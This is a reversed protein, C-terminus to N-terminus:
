NSLIYLIEDIKNTLRGISFPIEDDLLTRHFADVISDEDLPNFIISPECVVYTYPLDAAIIKCGSEIAEVLGLGLSESLSPHIVYESQSLIRSVQQKMIFGVNEIPIGEKQKEDILALLNRYYPSVTLILKGEKTQVYFKCFANILRVHNKYVPANSIYAFTGKSRLLKKGESILPEFFPLVLVKHDEIKTSNMLKEKMLQTQVIWYDTNKFFFNWIMRKGLFLGKSFFSQNNPTELYLSQHLYTYVPVKLRINPPLNGFCFVKSFRNKNKQYFRHRELLSAKKYLVINREKIYPHSKEIREDFLYFLENDTGELCSVLYDLLVKGGGNNIYLGDILIM